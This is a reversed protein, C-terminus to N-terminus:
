KSEPIDRILTLITLFEKASLATGLLSLHELVQLERKTVHYRALLGHDKIFRQWSPNTRKPPELKSPTLLAEAEPHSLVLLEQRDLGLTDAIRAVLKLSPKRRGSEIFAVHSAEVGLKQALARQTLGLAERRTRLSEGLKNVAKMEKVDELLARRLRPYHKIAGRVSFKRDMGRIQEFRFGYRNAIYEL